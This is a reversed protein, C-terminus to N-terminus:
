KQISMLHKYVDTESKVTLLYIGQSNPSIDLIIEIETTSKEFVTRGTLDTISITKTGEPIYLIFNGNNPNPFISLYGNQNKNQINSLRTSHGKGCNTGDEPPCICVKYDLCNCWWDEDREFSYDTQSSLNCDNTAEVTYINGHVTNEDYDQPLYIIVNNINAPDVNISSGSNNGQSVLWPQGVSCTYQIISPDNQVNITGGFWCIKSQWPVGCDGNPQCTADLKPPNPNGKEPQISPSTVQLSNYCMGGTIYAQIADPNSSYKNVIFENPDSASQTLWPPIYIYQIYLHFSADDCSSSASIEIPSNVCPYQQSVNFDISYATLTLINSYTPSGGGSPSYKVYIDVSCPGTFTLLATPYHNQNDMQPNITVNNLNSSTWHWDSGSEVAGDVWAYVTEQENQCICKGANCWPTGYPPQGYIKDLGMTALLIVVLLFNYIKKM